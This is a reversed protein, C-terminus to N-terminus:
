VAMRANHQPRTERQALPEVPHEDALLEDLMMAAGHLRLYEQAVQERQHELESLRQQAEQMAATIKQRKSRVTETDM